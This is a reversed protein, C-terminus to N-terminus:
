SGDLSRATLDKVITSLILAIVAIIVSILMAGHFGSMFASPPLDAFPISGSNAFLTFFTAFMATGLTGGFYVSFIMLASGSSRDEEKVSEVIRSAAPGGCLGWVAGMLVLAVMLMVISMSPEIVYYIVSYSVLAFCAMVSFIRRGRLDSMRGIPVCIILTIVPPIFLFLGSAASDLGIGLSFYFPLLYFAGMCAMNILLFATFVSDFRWSAFIRVNLM